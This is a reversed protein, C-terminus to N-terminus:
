KGIRYFIYFERTDGAFKAAAERFGPLPPRRGDLTGAFAWQTSTIFAPIPKTEPVACFLDPENRRHFLNHSQNRDSM